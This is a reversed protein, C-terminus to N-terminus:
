EKNKPVPEGKENIEFELSDDKKDSTFRKGHRLAENLVDMGTNKGEELTTKSASEDSLLNGTLNLKLNQSIYENIRNVFAKQDFPIGASLLCSDLLQKLNFNAVRINSKRIKNLNVIIPHSANYELTLNKGSDGFSKQDMMTMIQRMGSTVNSIVVAPSDTLRKSSIANVVVPQLENKIWLSFIHLDDEPIKEKDISIEKDDKMLEKPIEAESSEINVFNFKKYEALQRFIMEEINISIYLVPIDNKIFHEMYPSNLAMEKQPSLFYYISKQSPKMKEIYNDLTIQEAFSSDYRSLSLLIESNETDQHLGEKIYIHFDKYWKVYEEPNSKSEQELLRLVRKTVVSRLKSILNSDQYNERSINLPIDECDVIGKVFRLYNPLLERCGAKILVKKSYLDVGIESTSFGFMESNQMPLYLLMKISM